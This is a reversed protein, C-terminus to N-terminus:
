SVLDMQNQEWWSRIQGIDSAPNAPDQYGLHYSILGCGLKVLTALRQRSARNIRFMPVAISIAAVVRGNADRIGSGIGEVGVHAGERNFAIGTKRIQQLNLKLETKTVITKPIIPQLQEEPYLSDIEAETLESLFFKGMASAYATLVAGVHLSFRFADKSDEKMVVIVNGNDFIGMNVTESTLDHLTKVIPGGAKLVDTARSYLIGLIYLELGITYKGTEANRELLGGTTLAGLIRYTTTKPIGVRQSIDAASLEVENPTFTKLVSVVRHVSRPFKDLKM